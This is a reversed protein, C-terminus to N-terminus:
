VAELRLHDLDLVVADAAQDHLWRRKSDRLTLLLALPWLMVVPVRVLARILARVPPLKKLEEGGQRPQLDFLKTGISRKGLAELGVRWVGVWFLIMAQIGFFWAGNSMVARFGEAFGEGYGLPHFLGRIAFAFFALANWMFVDIILAMMRKSSAAYGYARTQGFLKRTLRLILLYLILVAGFLVIELQSAHVGLLSSYFLTYFVVVGLLMLGFVSIFVIQLTHRM